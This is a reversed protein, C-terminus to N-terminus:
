WDLTKRVWFGEQSVAHVEEPINGEEWKEVCAEDKMVLQTITWFLCLTNEFTSYMYLLMIKNGTAM